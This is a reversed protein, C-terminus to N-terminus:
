GTVVAPRAARAAESTREGTLEGDRGVGRLSAVEEHWIARTREPQVNHAGDFYSQLTAVVESFAAGARTEHPTSGGGGSVAAVVEQQQSQSRQQEVHSSVLSLRRM